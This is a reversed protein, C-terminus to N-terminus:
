KYHAPPSNYWGRWSMWTSPRQRITQEVAEILAPRSNRIPEGYRLQWGRGPAVPSLVFPVIPCATQRALWVVGDAVPILRGLVPTLDQGYFDALVILSGGRRLLELGRRAAVQPSYIRSGFMLHSLRSLARHRSDPHMSRADIHLDPDDPPLPQWMSVLGLEEIALSLRAFALRQNWQHVSLLICGETPPTGVVSVHEELWPLSLRDLQYSLVEDVMRRYWWALAFRWTARPTPKHGLTHVVAAAVRRMQRNALAAGVAALLASDIYTPGSSFELRASLTALTLQQAIRRIAANAAHRSTTGGRPHPAADVLM